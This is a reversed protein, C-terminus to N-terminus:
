ISKGQVLRDKTLNSGLTVAARYTEPLQLDIGRTHAEDLFVVCTHLQKAFPSTTLLEVRGKKDIVCIEDDMSCFVAGHIDDRARSASLLWEHAFSENTMDLVQAGVDLVVRIEPDMKLILGLLNQSKCIGGLGHDALSVVSNEPRMLHGLVLANTHRHRDLEFQTVSVPLTHQSDNTGSFGTLPQAKTRGIDWGSASLKFPFEKMEKNFIIHSLFYDVVGKSHRLHPFVADRCKEKDQLNVGRLHRFSVPLGESTKVWEQFEADAQDSRLLHELSLQLEDDSMGGYYYSLCTLCIVVDPHSFESRASPSDKARFPVALKTLPERTPDLGYHVRWRKQRFVFDIVGCAFLGRLLLVNSSHTEWFLSQEVEQKSEENVDFKSIYELLHRRMQHSEHSLPFDGLGNGCIYDVALRIVTDSAEKSLFRLIPFSSRASHDIEIERPYDMETTRTFRLIVALVEQILIWRRPGHEIARQLGMTYILEFKTSFNEDSEDVIDRANSELFEHVRWLRAALESEGAIAKQITMLQLSLIHEPQALVVSGGRMCQECSRMIIDVMSATFSTSRSVPLQYVRRNLLGGLKSVLIDLMQRAQPKAVIVRPLRNGDALWAAVIPVIVMSKGEGMNLQMTGNTGDPTEIMTSAIDQQVPRIRLNSEVELLLSDPFRYPDWSRPVAGSLERLLDQPSRQIARSLREFTQVNSMIVAHQIVTPAWGSPVSTWHDHNLLSLLNRKSFRPWFSTQSSIRWSCHTSHRLSLVQLIDGAVDNYRKKALEKSKQIQRRLDQTQRITMPQRSQSLWSISSDLKDVYSQEYSSSARARLACTFERLLKELGENSTEEFDVTLPPVEDAEMPPAQVRNLLDILTVNSQKRSPSYTSRHLGLAPMRVVAEPANLLVSCVSGLYQFLKLNNYWTEFHSNVSQTARTTDFYSLNGGRFSPSLCPWQERLVSELQSAEQAVRIEFASERREAARRNTERQRKPLRAEASRDFAIKAGGLARQIQDPSYNRGKALQYSANTPPKIQRMANVTTFALLIQLCYIDAEPAFALTALWSSLQPKLRDCDASLKQHLRRWISPLISNPAGLFLPSYRLDSDPIEPTVGNMGDAESLFEYLTDPSVQRSVGALVGSSFRMAYGFRAARETREHINLRLDSERLYDADPVTDTDRSDVGHNSLARRLGRKTLERNTDTVHGLEDPLPRFVGALQAGDALEQSLTAFLDSQASPRIVPAWKVVQMQRLHKPYYARNPALVAIRRLIQGTDSDFDLSKVAASGLINLAEETGTHGTFPDPLVGSTIAHLEALFLYAKLSGNGRLQGLHRDLYYTQIRGGTGSTDLTTNPVTGSSSPSLNPKGSPILVSRRPTGEDCGRLVLKTRLGTLTGIGQDPDVHMGQYQRSYIKDCNAQIFFDLQFKPLHIDTSGHQGQSIINFDFVAALPEFISGLKEATRTAPFIVQRGDEHRLHWKPGSKVLRWHVSDSNWADESPRLSVVSTHVNYWYVYENAFTTPVTGKFLRQPILEWTSDNKQARVILDDADDLLFQVLCGRFRTSAVFRMGAEGSPMSEFAVHGFLLKYMLNMEYQQPLRQRPLGNVLLEGTVLNVHIDLCSSSSPGAASRSQVWCTNLAEWTSGPERCFGNWNTEIALDLANSHRQCIAAQVPEHFRRIVWQTRLGLHLQLPNDNHSASFETEQKTILGEFYSSCAESDEALGAVHQDDVAFSSLCVLAIEYARRSYELRQAKDQSSFAKQRLTRLWRRGVARCEALFKLCDPASETPCLALLRCGLLVFVALATRSEWSEQIAALCRDLNELCVRVFRPDEGRRHTVRRWTSSSLGCQEVTQWVFLLTDVDNMDVLPMALQVLVNHWQTERGLPLSCLAKFQEISSAMPCQHQDAIVHNPAAGDPHEWTRTIFRQLSGSKQPLKLTCQDSMHETAQHPVLFRHTQKNFLHWQPGTKLCVQEVQILKVLKDRRHTSAEPKVESLLSTRFGHSQFHQRLESYDELLCTYEPGRGSIIFGMVDQLLFLTSDRWAGFASPLRLEFVVAQALCTDGPLPWEHARISLKNAEGSLICKTCRNKHHETISDGYKDIRTRYTCDLSNSERILQHYREKLDQFEQCKAARAHTAGDTIQALLSQHIHSSKFYRVGFDNRTGFDFIISRHSVARQTREKLYSEIANLREMHKASRLSLAMWPMLPVEPQFEAVLPHNAIVSKDCAVWLELTTLIMVSMGEPRGRYAGSAANEYAYLLCQLSRCTSEASEHISIWSGLHDAVWTEFSALNYVCYPGDLDFNIGTPLEHAPFFTIGPMPPCFRSKSLTVRQSIAELYRDLDPIEISSDSQLQKTSFPQIDLVKTTEKTISAWRGHLVETTEKIVNSTYTMWAEAEQVDLKLLRRAIKVSMLDLQDCGWGAQVCRHLLKSLFFVMFKKYLSSDYSGDNTPPSLTSQLATRLLLWAPSRRWPLKSGHGWIVEERTHKWFGNVQSNTGGFAQIMAPFLNKLIFPLVTDREEVHAAKAKWAKPQMEAVGERSMTGLTNAITDRLNVDRFSESLISAAVEPFHRRLRGSTSYVAENSPSLEFLEFVVEDHVRRVLVGANQSV